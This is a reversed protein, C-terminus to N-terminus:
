QFNFHNLESKELTKMKTKMKKKKSQPVNLSAEHLLYNFPTVIAWIIIYFTNANTQVHNNQSMMRVWRAAAWWLSRINKFYRIAFTLVFKMYNMKKKKETRTENQTNRIRWLPVDTSLMRGIHTHTHIHVLKCDCVTIWSLGDCRVLNNQEVSVAFIIFSLNYSFTDFCKRTRIFKKKEWTQYLKLKRKAFKQYNKKQNGTHKHVFNCWIPKASFQLFIWRSPQMTLYLSLM